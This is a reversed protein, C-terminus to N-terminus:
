RHAAMYNIGEQLALKWKSLLEKTIKHDHKEITKLLAEVWKEYMWDPINLHDADHSEALHHVKLKAAESGEAYRLLHTLGNRLLAMQAKMDTDKFREKILPSDKMLLEYFDDFFAPSVVCRGFSLKVAGIDLM